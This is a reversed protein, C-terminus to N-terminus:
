PPLPTCNILASFPTINESKSFAISFMAVIGYLMSAGSGVAILSDMNPSKHWLGKFGRFYYSRNLYIVPLTLIFQLLVAVMANNQGHYWGPMPIGLMHGMSFYMLVLLFVASIIIRRLMHMDNHKSTDAKIKAKDGALSASYGAKSVADVIANVVSDDEADVVMTGALLNVDAQNVGAVQRSVKEVRASCAACTMGSVTFNLKM